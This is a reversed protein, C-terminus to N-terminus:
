VYEPLSAASVLLVYLDLGYGAILVVSIGIYTVTTCFLAQYIPKTVPGLMEHSVHYFLASVGDHDHTIRRQYVSHTVSSRTILLVCSMYAIIRRRNHLCTCPLRTTSKRHPRTRPFREGIRPWFSRCSTPVMRAGRPSICTNGHSVGPFHVSSVDLRCISACFGAAIGLLRGTVSVSGVFFFSFSFILRDGSGTSAPLFPPKTVGYYVLRLLEHM